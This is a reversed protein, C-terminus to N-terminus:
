GLARDLWLLTDLTGIERLWPQSHPGKRVNLQVDAGGAELARAFDVNAARYPDFTSTGAYVAPKRGSMLLRKAAGQAYLKSFAGQVSGVAQFSDPRQLYAELASFGGLSVGALGAREGAVDPFERRVAPLLKETTWIAYRLLATQWNGGRHPNPLFPCVICLGRYPRKQLSENLRSRDAADLYQYPEDEPLRGLELRDLASRLGYADLWARVGLKPDRTEGLGHLLVAIPLKVPTARRKPLVVVCRSLNPASEPVELVQEEPERGGLLGSACWGVGLNLFSRRSSWVM